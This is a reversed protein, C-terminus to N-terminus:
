LDRESLIGSRVATAVIEHRKHTQPLDRIGFKDTISRLHGKVTAVSLYLEDAIQKNSAPVGGPERSPRALAILVRRESDTLMTADLVSQGDATAAASTETPAWYGITTKGIRIVDGGHLRRRGTIREGNVYTGNHSLGDDAIAWEAGVPQLEAHTRSVESDWPLSIPCASRRGIQVAGHEPRLEHMRLVGTGDRLFVFPLGRREADLRLKLEAPTSAHLAYPSASTV